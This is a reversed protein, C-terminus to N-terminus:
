DPGVDPGVDPVAVGLLLFTFHYWFGSSLLGVAAARICAASEVALGPAAPVPAMGRGFAIRGFDASMIEVATSM